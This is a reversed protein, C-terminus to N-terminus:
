GKAGRKDNKNKGRLRYECYVQTRFFGKTVKTMSELSLFITFRRFRGGLYGLGGLMNM